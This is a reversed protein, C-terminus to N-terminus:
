PAGGDRCLDVTTEELKMLKQGKVIFGCAIDKQKAESVNGFEAAIRHPGM